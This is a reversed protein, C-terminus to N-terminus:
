YQVFVYKHIRINYKTIYICTYGKFMIALTKALIIVKEIYLQSRYDLLFIFSVIM